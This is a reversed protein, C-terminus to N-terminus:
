QSTRCPGDRPLATSPLLAWLALCATAAIAYKPPPAAAADGRPHSHQGLASDPAHIGSRVSDTNQDRSAPILVHAIM